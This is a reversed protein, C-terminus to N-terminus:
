RRATPTGHLLIRGELSPNPVRTVSTIGGQAMRRVKQEQVPKTDLILLGPPHAPFKGDKIAETMNVVKGKVEVGKLDRFHAEEVGNFIAPHLSSLLELTVYRGVDNPNVVTTIKRVLVQSLRPTIRVITNM